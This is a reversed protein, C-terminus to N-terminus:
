YCFASWRQNVFYELDAAAVRTYYQYICARQKENNKGPLLVFKTVSGSCYSLLDLRKLHSCLTFLFITKIVFTGCRQHKVYESDSRLNRTM